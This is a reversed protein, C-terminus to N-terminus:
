TSRSRAPPSRDPRSTARAHQGTADAIRYAFSDTGDAWNPDPTYTVTGGPNIEVQGHAPPTLVDIISLPGGEPDSDNALVSLEIPTDESTM